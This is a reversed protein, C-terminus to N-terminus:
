EGVTYVSLGERSARVLALQLAMLDSCTKSHGLHPPILQSILRALLAAHSDALIVDDFETIEIGTAQKLQQLAPSLRDLLATSLAAVLTRKPHGELYIHLTM